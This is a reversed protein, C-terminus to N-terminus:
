VLHRNWFYTMYKEYIIDEDYRCGEAYIEYSDLKFDLYYVFQDINKCLFGTQGHKVIETFSGTNTTLVPTGSLYAEIINFGFPEFYQSPQILWSSLSLLFKRQDVNAYGFFTVNPYDKKRYIVDDILLEEKDYDNHYGAIIFIYDKRLQSLELVVGVGKIHQIRALYLVVKQKDTNFIFENANFIPPIINDNQNDILRQKKLKLM